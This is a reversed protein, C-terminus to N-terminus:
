GRALQLATMGNADTSDAQAGWQLLLRVIDAHGNSAAVPLARNTLEPGVGDILDWRVSNTKGQAVARLFSHEARRMKTAHDTWPEAAWVCLGGLLLAGTILAIRAKM